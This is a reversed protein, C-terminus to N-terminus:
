SSSLLLNFFNFFTKERCREDRVGIFIVRNVHCDKTAHQLQENTESPHAHQNAHHWMRHHQEVVESATIFDYTQKWVRRDPAYIPDYIQMSFGAESFICSMTPGPGSGFDLGQSGPTLREMLPNALRSLFARYRNDLPDNQHHDYQAIEEAPPLFYQPPVFVLFCNACRFFERSSDRHFPKNQNSECLPCILDSSKIEYNPNM